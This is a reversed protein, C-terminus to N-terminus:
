IGPLPISHFHVAHYFAFAGSLLLATNAALNNSRVLRLALRRRSVPYFPRFGMYNTLDLLIHLFTASFGVAFGTIYSIAWLHNLAISTLVGFIVAGAITHTGGRHRLGLVIDVDPAVSLLLYALTIDWFHGEFYRTGAVYVFAGLTLLGFGIHGTRNM